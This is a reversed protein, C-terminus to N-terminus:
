MPTVAGNGDMLAPSATRRHHASLVVLQLPPDLFQGVAANGGHEGGAGTAAPGQTAGTTTRSTRWRGCPGRVCGRPDARRPIRANQASHDDAVGAGSTAAASRSSWSLRAQVSEGFSEADGLDGGEVAAVDVGHPGPVGVGEGRQGSGLPGGVSRAVYAYRLHRQAVSRRAAVPSIGARASTQDPIEPDQALYPAM